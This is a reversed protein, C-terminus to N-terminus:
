TQHKHSTHYILPKWTNNINLGEDQNLNNKRKEIEIAERIKRKLYHDEKSILKADEMRIYHSSSFAHDVLAFKETRNRSIDATHEKLRINLYRGTEGIYEKGCSRPIIYIEKQLRPNIPDKASDVMNRITNPPTFAIKINHKNLIKSIKDTTGKIYPLSIKPIDITRKINNKNLTQHITKNIVDINYGNHQFVHRLHNIEHILHHSDATRSARTTLTKIIGIKQKPHHHSDAHLYIETHTKKRYVETSLKGDKKTLLIDLFPLQRDKEIELTFKIHSSINNIHNLFDNLSRFLM